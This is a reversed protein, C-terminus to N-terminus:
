KDNQEASEVGGQFIVAVGMSEGLKLRERTERMSWLKELNIKQSIEKIM